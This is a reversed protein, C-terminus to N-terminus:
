EDAGAQVLGLDALMRDRDWYLLLRSVRGDDIDFVCANKTDMRGLELGSTRGRGSFSVLALVRRRDLERYEEAAVRFDGYAGM